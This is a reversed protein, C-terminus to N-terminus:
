VREPRLLDDITERRRIVRTRKGEVLVEAPRPRTNYNSTLSMGYAGVDLIALWEGETSEPLERDRAFFDASECIPGVVDAKATRASRLSASVPIIEHYAGYLSPRMLDNMAADTVIFRKGNNRKTHVVRTVLIGAPAIIARGPELLIHVGLNKLPRTVAAAYARVDRPFNRIEDPRYSIGLGGGADIYRIDHGDSRLVATLEAVIELTQRFPALDTIQSGIHVSIGAAVLNKNSAELRYLERADRLPVGFKHEHLGTSIYPHTKAEVDPNVRMAFRANKKLHMARASLLKLESASEVNFLLIGAGLAFDIEDSQKGVGSFVVYKAAKKEAALVRYLEGASVVDFGAGERALLKLLFLNSNAKVSYCVTHEHGRFAADFERYRQRITNGSYLYLPTGYKEAATRVAIDEAYLQWELARLLGRSKRYTFAPPREQLRPTSV